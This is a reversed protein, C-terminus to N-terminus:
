YSRTLWLAVKWVLDVAGASVLLTDWRQRQHQERELSIIRRKLQGFQERLVFMEETVQSATLALPATDSLFSNNRSESISNNNNHITVKNHDSQVLERLSDDMQSIEHDTGNYVSGIILTRPTPTEAIGPLLAAETVVQRPPARFGLHQNHGLVLIRDPVRM